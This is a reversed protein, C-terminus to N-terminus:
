LVEAIAKKPGFILGLVAGVLFPFKAMKISNDEHSKTWHMSYDSRHFQGWVWLRMFGNMRELRLVM